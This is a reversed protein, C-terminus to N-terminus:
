HLKEERSEMTLLAFDGNVANGLRNELELHTFTQMHLAPDFVECRAKGLAKAHYMAIDADRLMEAPRMYISSTGLMEGGM